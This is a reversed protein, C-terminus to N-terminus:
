APCTTKEIYLSSCTRTVSESWGTLGSRTLARAQFVCATGPTLGALSTQPRIRAVPLNTWTGPTGGSVIPAWRLEYSVAGPVALVGVVVEGSITGPEIKRISESM